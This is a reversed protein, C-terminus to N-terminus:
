HSRSILSTIVSLGYRVPQCDVVAFEHTWPRPPSLSYLMLSQAVQGGCNQPLSPSPRQWPGHFLPCPWNTDCRPSRWVTAHQNVPQYPRRTAHRPARWSPPKISHLFYRMWTLCSYVAQSTQHRWHCLLYGCNSTTSEHVAKGFYNSSHSTFCM